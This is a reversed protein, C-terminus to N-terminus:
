RWCFFIISVLVLFFFLLFKKKPFFSLIFIFFMLFDFFSSIFLFHEFFSFLFCSFLCFFSCFFLLFFLFLPGLPTGAKRSPGLFQNKVYSSHLSITVFKLGLFLNQAGATGPCTLYVPLVPDPAQCGRVGEPTGDRPTGTGCIMGYTSTSCSTRYKGCTSRPCPQHSGTTTLRPRKNPCSATWTLIPNYTLHTVNAHRQREKRQSDTNTPQRASSSFATSVECTCNKTPHGIDRSTCNMTWTHVDRHGHLSTSTLASPSPTSPNCSSSEVPPSSMM